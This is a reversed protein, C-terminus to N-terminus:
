HPSHDFSSLPATTNYRRRGVGKSSGTKTSSAGRAAIPKSSELALLSTLAHADYSDPTAEGGALASEVQQLLMDRQELVAQVAARGADRVRCGLVTLELSRAGALTSPEIFKVTPVM